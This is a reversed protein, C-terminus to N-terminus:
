LVNQITKFTKIKAHVLVGAGYFLVVISVIATIQPITKALQILVVGLLLAVLSHTKNKLLLKGLIYGATITSFYIMAIYAFVGVIALPIGIATAGLIVIVVPTLIVAIVGFLLSKGWDKTGANLVREFTKPLLKLAVIGTLLLSLTGLIGVTPDGAQDISAVNKEGMIALNDHVNTLEEARVFLNQKITAESSLTLSKGLAFVDKDVTNNLTLSQGMSFVNGTVPGNIVIDKGMVFLDGNVTADVQIKNGMVFLTDNITGSPTVSKSDEEQTLFQAASTFTSTALLLGLSALFTLGLKRLSNM